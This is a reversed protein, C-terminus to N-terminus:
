KILILYYIKNIIKRRRILAKKKSGAQLLMKLHVTYIKHRLAYHLGNTNKNKTM